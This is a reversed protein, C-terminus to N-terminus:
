SADMHSKYKLYKKKVKSSQLASDSCVTNKNKQM